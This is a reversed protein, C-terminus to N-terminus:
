VSATYPMYLGSMKLIYNILVIASVTIFLSKKFIHKTGDIKFISDALWWASIALLPIIPPYILFSKQFNGQLLAILSRQFGCGPCDIGTLYKFPCPLLFDQLRNSILLSCFKINLYTFM